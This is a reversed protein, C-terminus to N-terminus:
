NGWGGGVGGCGGEAESKTNARIESIRQQVDRLKGDESSVARPSEKSSSLEIKTSM